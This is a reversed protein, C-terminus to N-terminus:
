ESLIETISVNLKSAIIDLTELRINRQNKRIKSITVTSIGTIKKFEKCSPKIGQKMMAQEIKNWM